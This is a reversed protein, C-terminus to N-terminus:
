FDCSVIITGTNGTTSTLIVSDGARLGTAANMVFEINSDTRGVIVNAFSASVIASSPQRVGFVGSAQVSTISSRMTVPFQLIQLTGSSSICMGNAAGGTGTITLAYCTRQCKALEEEPPRPQYPTTTTGIEFKIDTADTPVIVSYNTSTALTVNDGSVLSSTGDVTATGTGGVWSITYTDNLTRANEVVQEIQLGDASGKWKDYGYVGASPQGGAFGRQNVQFSGNVLLNDGIYDAKETIDGIFSSIQTLENQLYLALDKSSQETLTQPPPNPVYELRSM